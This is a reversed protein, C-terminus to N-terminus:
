MRVYRASPAVATWLLAVVGLVVASTVLAEATHDVCVTVAVLLAADLVPVPEPDLPFVLGVDAAALVDADWADSSNRVRATM